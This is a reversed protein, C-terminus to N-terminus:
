IFLGKIRRLIGIVSLSLPLKLDALMIQTKDKLATIISDNVAESLWSLNLTAALVKQGDKIFFAKGRDFCIQKVRRGDPLDTCEFGHDQCLCDDFVFQKSLEMGSVVPLPHELLFNEFGRMETFAYYREIEFERRYRELLADDKFQRLLSDCYLNVISSKIFGNLCMSNCQMMSVYQSQLYDYASLNELILTDSDFHWFEDLGLRSLVEEIVFWRYFVYHTWNRNNKIDAHRSGSVTVFSDNFAKIRNTSYGDVDIWTWGSDIALKKNSADGILIKDVDPNSYNAFEMTKILYPSVGYHTFILTTM